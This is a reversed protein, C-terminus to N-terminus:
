IITMLCRLLSVLTSQLSRKGPRTDLCKNISEKVKDGAGFVIRAQFYWGSDDESAVRRVTFRLCDSRDITKTVVKIIGPNAQEVEVDLQRFSSVIGEIDEEPTEIEQKLEQETERDDKDSSDEYRETKIDLSPQKGFLSWNQTQVYGDQAISAQVKRFIQTTYDTTWGERVQRV